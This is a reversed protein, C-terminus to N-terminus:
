NDYKANAIKANIYNLEDEDIGVELYKKKRLDWFYIAINMYRNVDESTKITKISKESLLTMDIFSRIEDQNKYDYLLYWDVCYGYIDNYQSLYDILCKKNLLKERKEGRGVFSNLLRYKDPVDQKEMIIGEFEKYAKVAGINNIESILENLYYVFSDIRDETWNKANNMAGTAPFLSFNFLTHTNEKCYNLKDIYKEGNDNKLIRLFRNYKGRDKIGFNFDVDKSIKIDTCNNLKYISQYYEEWFPLTELHM